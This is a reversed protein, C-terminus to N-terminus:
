FPMDGDNVTSNDNEFYKKDEYNVSSRFDYIDPEDYSSDFTNENFVPSVTTKIKIYEGFIPDDEFMGICVRWEGLNLYDVYGIFQNVINKYDNINTLLIVEQSAWDISYKDDMIFIREPKINISRLRQILVDIDAEIPIEIALRHLGNQGDHHDERVDGKRFIEEIVSKQIDKNMM